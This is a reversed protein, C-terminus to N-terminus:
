ENNLERRKLVQKTNWIYNIDKKNQFMNILESKGNYPRGYFHTFLENKDYSQLTFPNGFGNISSAKITNNYISINLAEQDKTGSIFEPINLDFYKLFGKTYLCCGSNYYTRINGTNVQIINKCKSVYNNVRRVIDDRLFPKFENYAYIDSDTRIFNIIDPIDEKISVDTDCYLIYDFDNLLHKCELRVFAPHIHNYLEKLQIFEYNNNFCYNKMRPTTLESLKEFEEGINVTILAKKM